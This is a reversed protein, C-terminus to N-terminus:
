FVLFFNYHLTDVRISVILNFFQVVGSGSAMQHEFVGKAQTEMRM